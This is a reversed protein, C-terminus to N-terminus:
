EMNETSYRLKIKNKKRDAFKCQRYHRDVAKNSRKINVCDARENEPHREESNSDATALELFSSM